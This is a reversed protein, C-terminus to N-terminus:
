RRRQVQTNDCGSKDEDHESVEVCSEILPGERGESRGKGREREGESGRRM